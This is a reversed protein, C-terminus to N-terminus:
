TMRAALDDEDEDRATMPSTGESGTCAGRSDQDNPAKGNCIVLAGTLGVPSRGNTPVSAGRYPTM